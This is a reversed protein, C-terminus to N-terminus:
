KRKLFAAVIVAIASIIAAIIAPHKFDVWFSEKSGGDDPKEEHREPMKELHQQGDKLNQIEDLLMTNIKAVQKCIEPNNIRGIISEMFETKSELFEIKHAFWEIKREKPRENEPLPMLRESLELSQSRYDSALQMLRNQLEGKEKPSIKQQLRECIGNLENEIELVRKTLENAFQQPQALLASVLNSKGAILVILIIASITLAYFIFKVKM